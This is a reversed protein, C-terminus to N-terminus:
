SLGYQSKSSVKGNEFTIMAHSLLGSGDWQYITVTTGLLISESTIYGDGGMIKAVEKYTMGSTVQSFQALTVSKTDKNLGAQSKNSVKGKTFTVSISSFTGADWSYSEMKIGSLETSYTLSYDKGLIKVVDDLSSEMKIKCFSDYNVSSQKPTATPKPTPKVTPTATPQKTEEALPELSPDIYFSHIIKEADYSYDKTRNKNQLFMIGVVRGLAPDFLHTVIYDVTTGAGRTMQGSLGGITVPEDSITTVSEINAANLYLDTIKDKAADYQEQTLTIKALIIIMADAKEVSTALLLRETDKGIEYYYGPVQFSYNGISYIRNTKESFGDAVDSPVETTVPTAEEEDVSSTSEKGTCAFASSFLLLILFISIIRKM